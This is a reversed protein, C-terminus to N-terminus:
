SEDNQGSLNILLKTNITYEPIKVGKKMRETLNTIDTLHQVCHVTNGSTGIVGAVVGGGHYCLLALQIGGRHDVEGSTVRDDVPAQPVHWWQAGGLVVGFPEVTFM